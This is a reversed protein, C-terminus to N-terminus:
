EDLRALIWPVDRKPVFAAVVGEVVIAAMPTHPVDVFRM